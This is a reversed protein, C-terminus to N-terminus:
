VEAVRSLAIPQAYSFCHLDGVVVVFELAESVRKHAVGVGALAV